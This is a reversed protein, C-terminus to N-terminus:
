KVEALVAVMDNKMLSNTLILQRGMDVIGNAQKWLPVQQPKGGMEQALAAVPKMDQALESVIKKVMENDDEIIQINKELQQKKIRVERIISEAESLSASKLKAMLSEIENAPRRLGQSSSRKPEIFNYAKIVSNRLADLQPANLAVRIPEQASLKAFVRKTTSM